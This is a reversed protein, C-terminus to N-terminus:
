AIQWGRGCAGSKNHPPLKNRSCQNKRDAPLGIGDLKTTIELSGNIGFHNDSTRLVWYGTVIVLIYAVNQSSQIDYSGEM